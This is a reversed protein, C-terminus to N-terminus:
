MQFWQIHTHVYKLVRRGKEMSQFHSCFIFMQSKVWLSNNKDSMPLHAVLTNHDDDLKMAGIYVCVCACACVGVGGVCM